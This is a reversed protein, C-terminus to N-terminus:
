ADYPEYIGEIFFDNNITSTWPVTPQTIHPQTGSTNPEARVKWSFSLTNAAIYSVIGFAAVTATPTGTPTVKFSVTDAAVTQVTNTNDTGTTSSNTITVSPSGPTGEVVTEILWTKAAGTATATYITLNKWVAPQTIVSRNAETADGTNAAPQSIAWYRVASNVLNNGGTNMLHVSEGPTTPVNEISVFAARATPTGTPDSRWYFRDGQSYSITTATYTGTTATDAITIVCATDSGNKVLTLTYSTGAGPTNALIAQANQMTGSTPMVQEAVAATTGNSYSQIPFYRAAANSLNGSSGGMLSVNKNTTCTARMTWRIVGTNATTGGASTILAITDGSTATFSSSTNNSTTANVATTCTLFQDAGNKQVIFARTFSADGTDQEVYLDSFTYTQGNGPVVCYTGAGTASTGWARVVNTPAIYRRASATIGTAVQGTINTYATSAM